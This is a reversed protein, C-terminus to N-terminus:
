PPSFLKVLGFGLWPKRGWALSQGHLAPRWPGTRKMLVLVLASPATSMVCDVPGGPEREVTLVGDDFAFIARAEPYGRVRLDYRATLGAAAVPDVFLHVLPLYSRFSLAGYAPPISWPRGAARAIDWGHVLVEGLVLGGVVSRPMPIGAHWPVPVNPGALAAVFGERAVDLRQALASSGLQTVTAMAAENSAAIAGLDTYRSGEGRAIEQYVDLGSVLHAVTQEMSWNGVAPASLDPIGRILGVARRLAADVAATVESLDPPAPAVATVSM